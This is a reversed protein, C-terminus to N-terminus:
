PGLLAEALERRSAIDLKRYTNSLHTEVTKLTLFLQQAIQRNTLGEAAMEAIRRESPTLSEVGIPVFRRQKEGTAASSATPASPSRMAGCRRALEFGARLPERADSRHGARRLTAGLDTLAHAHELRAPSRELLGLGRAATRRGSDGGEVVGRTALASGIAGPTGLPAGQGAGSGGAGTGHRARGARRAGQGRQGAAPTGTNGRLGWHELRRTLELLEDAGERTRGQALTLCGRSFYM